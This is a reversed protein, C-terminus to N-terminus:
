IRGQRKWNSFDAEFSFLSVQKLVTEEPSDVLIHAVRRSVEQVNDLKTELQIIRRQQLQLLEDLQVQRRMNNRRQLEEEAATKSQQLFQLRQTVVATQQRLDMIEQQTQDIEEDAQQISQHLEDESFQGLNEEAMTRDGNHYLIILRTSVVCLHRALILYAHLLDPDAWIGGVTMVRFLRM